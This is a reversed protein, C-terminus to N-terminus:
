EMGLYKRWFAESKYIKFYDRYESYLSDKNATYQAFLKTKRAQLCDYKEKDMERIIATKSFPNVAIIRKQLFQKGPSEMFIHAISPPNISERLIEKSLTHGNDTELFIQKSAADIDVYDYVNNINIDINAPLDEIPYFVEKKQFHKAFVEFSDSEAFFAPGKMFDELADLLLECNVYAFARISEHYHFSINELLDINQPFTGVAQIILANRKVLYFELAANEKSAFMLHWVCIGNLTIIKAKNRASFEVDDCRYFLPIPLNETSAFKIPTVCFWWGAYMNDNTYNQENKLVDHQLHLLMKPKLSEHLHKDSIFGIDEHQENRQELYLMAGSIFHDQYEPKILALLAYTRKLSEPLIEIDDDMFIIHTANFKGSKKLESTEIIGRSFGGAGGTNPNPFINIRNNSLKEIDLTRGNDVVNVILHSAIEDCGRVDASKNLLENNILELNTTIYEEKKFTTTCVSIDVTNLHDLNAIVASYYGGFFECYDDDSQLYFGVIDANKYQIPIIIEAVDDVNSFDTTDFYFVDFKETRIKASDIEEHILTRKASRGLDTKAIEEIADDLKIESNKLMYQGYFQLYFKGKLKLHLNYQEIGTYKAWKKVSFANFYSFFDINGDIKWSKGDFNLCDGWYYMRKHVNKWGCDPFLINQIKYPIANRTTSNKLHDKLLVIDRDKFNNDNHLYLSKSYKPQSMTNIVKQDMGLNNNRLEDILYYIQARSPPIIRNILQKIKNKKM